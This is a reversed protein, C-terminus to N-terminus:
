GEGSEADTTLRQLFAVEENRYPTGDPRLIDHFWPDPEASYRKVWSDWPYITQTKGSVLGWSFAGIKQNKLLPLITEFTSGSGRALYETLLIPRGYSQLDQIRAAVHETTYYSHFSIVDSESLMLRNIESVEKGRVSGRWVGCTIPQSPGAARAWRFAKALLAAALAPKDSPERDGYTGINPNDPENFLDWGLIRSDDRFQGIVGKVYGEMDDHRAQDSLLEAGPSQVWGSNHVHPRPPRQPGLAPFPDWVGDFLVFLVSIGHRYAVALFRDIRYTLGARDRDWLLDHLFMRAANFGLHAAWGLERDITPLDFTETQWMELQNVATAPIYNCGVLWPRRAYWAQSEEPTWQRRPTAM